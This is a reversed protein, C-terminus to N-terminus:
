MKKMLKKLGIEKELIGNKGTNIIKKSDQFQSLM